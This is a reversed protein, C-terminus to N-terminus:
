NQDLNAIFNDVIDSVFNAVANHFLTTKLAIFKINGTKKACKNVCLHNKELVPCLFTLLLELESDWFCALFGHM